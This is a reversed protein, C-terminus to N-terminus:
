GSSVRAWALLVGSGFALAGLAVLAPLRLRSVARRLLAIQEDELPVGLDWGGPTWGWALIGVVFDPKAFLVFAAIAAGVDLAIALGQLLWTV